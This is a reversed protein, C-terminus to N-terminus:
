DSLFLNRGFLMLRVAICSCEKEERIPIGPIMFCCLALFCCKSVLCASVSKEISRVCGGGWAQQLQLRGHPPTVCGSWVCGGGWAQQLQLRGHPPPTVFESDCVGRMRGCPAM